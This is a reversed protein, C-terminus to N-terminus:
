KPKGVLQISVIRTITVLFLKLKVALTFSIYARERKEFSDTPM